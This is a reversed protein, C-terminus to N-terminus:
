RPNRKRLENSPLQPVPSRSPQPLPFVSGASGDIPLHFALDEDVQLSVGITALRTKSEDLTYGVTLRDASNTLGRIPLQRFYRKKLASTSTNRVVFERSLANFRLLVKGQYYFSFVGPLRDCVEIGDEERDSFVERAYSQAFGFLIIPPVYPTEGLRARHEPDMSCMAQWASNWVGALEREIPHLLSRAKKESIFDDTVFKFLRAM